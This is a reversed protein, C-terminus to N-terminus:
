IHHSLMDGFTTKSINNSNTDSVSVKVNDNSVYHQFVDPIDKTIRSENKIYSPVPNGSRLSIMKTFNGVLLSYNSTGFKHLLKHLSAVALSLSQGNTGRWEGRSILPFIESVNGTHLTRIALEQMFQRFSLQIQSKNQFPLAVDSLYYSSTLTKASGAYVKFRAKSTEPISPCVGIFGRNININCFSSFIM